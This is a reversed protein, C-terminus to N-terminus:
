RGANQQLEKQYARHEPNICFYPESLQAKQQIYVKRQTEATMDPDIYGNAELYAYLPNLLFSSWGNVMSFNCDFRTHHEHHSKVDLILHYQRLVELFRQLKRRHKWTNHAAAHFIQVHMGATVFVTWAFAVYPSGVLGAAYFVFYVWFFPVTLCGTTLIGSDLIDDHRWNHQVAHHRQFGWAAVELFTRFIGRNKQVHIKVTDLLMHVLGTTLDIAFYAVIFALFFKSPSLTDKSTNALQFVSYLCLWPMPLILLARFCSSPSTLTELVPKQRLRDQARAFDATQRIEFEKMIIETETATM